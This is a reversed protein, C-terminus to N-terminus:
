YYRSLVKYRFTPYNSVLLRIVDGEGMGINESNNNENYVGNLTIGHTGTEAIITFEYAFYTPLKGSGYGFQREISSKDPLNISYDSTTYLYFVNHQSLDIQYTSGSIRFRSCEDGYVCTARIAANSKIGFNKTGGAVDIFLGYNATDFGYSQYQNSAHNYIRGAATFAGGATAPIVDNGFMAYGSNGGVRFFNRRIVLDGAGVQSPDSPVNDSATISYDSIIFGGITGATIKGTFYGDVAHLSGDTTDIWIKGTAGNKSAYFTVKDGYLKIQKTTGDVEIGVQSLNNYVEDELDEVADDAYKKYQVETNMLKFGKATIEFDTKNMKDDLDEQVTQITGEVTDLRTNTFKTGEAGTITRQLKMLQESASRKYEGYETQTVIKEGNEGVYGYLKTFNETNAESSRKYTALFQAVNVKEGNEDLFYKSREAIETKTDGLVTERWTGLLNCYFPIRLTQSANNGYNVTVDIYGSELTNPIATIWVRGTTNNKQTTVREDSSVVSAITFPQKQGDNVVSIQACSNGMKNGVMEAADLNIPYPDAMSQAFIFAKPTATVEYADNGRVVAYVSIKDSAIYKQELCTGEVTVLYDKNTVVTGAPINITINKGSLKVYNDAGDMKVSTITAELNTVMLKVTVTKSLAASAKRDKECPVAILADSFTLYPAISAYVTKKWVSRQAETADGPELITYDRVKTLDNQEELSMRDYEAQSIWRGNKEFHYTDAVCCQWYAGNHSVLDNFYCRRNGNADPTIDVWLGRNVPVSEDGYETQIVFRTAFFENGSKPSIMTKRKGELSWSNINRYEKIAPADDTNTELIIIHSLEPRTRHGWQVIHDGAAPIDSGAMAIAADADANGTTIVFDIYDHVRGDDEQLEGVADVLRWWFTNSVHKGKYVGDEYTLQAKNFTQCRAQAGVTWGSMTQTTGDDSYFVVRCRTVKRREEDTLSRIFKKRRGLFWNKGKTSFLGLLKGGVAWPVSVFDVGLENNNGDYYYVRWAVGSAPSLVFNGATSVWRRVELSEFVAKMRVYIEDVTLKSHGNYENTLRWGTDAIGDGTYNTSQARNIYAAFAKLVGNITADNLNASGTADIYWNKIGFWVGKKFGIIGQVVDDYKKSVFEAMARLASFTNYDSPPTIDTLTILYVGSGGTGIVSSGSYSIGNYTISKIQEQMDQSKSYAVAEGVTYRPSDYPIDLCIEYGIIRSSRGEEFYAPNILVVKQGMDYQHLEAGENYVWDSKMTCEYTNPDINLRALKQITHQYLEEEAEGVIGTDAIKTSDWGVLIFNDGVKPHLTADPLFRGYEENAVVEYYKEEDNYACEFEMGNLTGSQFIIKLTEGELIMDSSFNFGSSDKVRYFTRTTTTGDEEEVTSDYTTVDSVVCKTRPYVDEDIYVAEVAGTEDTVDEAQVWGHPCKSLPLMLRKQVIGNVTVDASHDQRYNSPLNRSSGFAIIRTAYENKSESSSMDDVNSDIEFDVANGGLECRGIYITNNEVWWEVDFASCINTLADWISVNEYKVWKSMDLANPYNRLEFGFQHGNYRFNSDRSGIANINAVVVGLHVNITSTLNFTTESSTSTPIYRCIKNKWKVYYADFQLTYDYGGTDNNYKGRVEKTLEFRGYNTVIYDGVNFFSPEALSFPLKVYHDNMLMRYVKSGEPVSEFTLLSTGNKQKIEIMDNFEPPM